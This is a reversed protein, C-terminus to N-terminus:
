VGCLNIEVTPELVKSTACLGVLLYGGRYPPPTKVLNEPFVTQRKFQSSTTVGPRGTNSSCPRNSAQRLSTYHLSGNQCTRSRRCSHYSRHQFQSQLPGLGMTCHARPAAGGPPARALAALIAPAPAPAPAAGARSSDYQCNGYQCAVTAPAPTPCPCAQWLSLCAVIAPM